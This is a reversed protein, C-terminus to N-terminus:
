RWRSVRRPSRNGDCSSSTARIRSARPMDPVSSISWISWYSNNTRSEGGDFFPGLRQHAITGDPREIRISYCCGVGSDRGIRSAPPEGHSGFIACKALLPHLRVDICAALDLFGRRASLLRFAADTWTRQRLGDRGLDSRQRKTRIVQIAASLLQQLLRLQHVDGGRPFITGAGHLASLDIRRHSVIEVFVHFGFPIDTTAAARVTMRDRMGHVLVYFDVDLDVELHLRITFAGRQGLDHAFGGTCLQIELEVDGPRHARLPNGNRAKHRLM